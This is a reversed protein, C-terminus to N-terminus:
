KDLTKLSKQLKLTLDEKIENKFKKTNSIKISTGVLKMQKDVEEKKDLPLDNYSEYEMAEIVRQRYDIFALKNKKITVNGIRPLYIDKRMDMFSNAVKSIHVELEFILNSLVIPSIDKFFTKHKDYTTEKIDIITKSHVNERDM